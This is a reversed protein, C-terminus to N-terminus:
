SILRASQGILACAWTNLEGSVLPSPRKRALKEAATRCLVAYEETLYLLCFEDTMRILEPLIEKASVRPTEPEKRRLSDSTGTAPAAAVRCDRPLMVFFRGNERATRFSEDFRRRTGSGFVVNFNGLVGHCVIEGLFPLLVTEVLRPLPVAVLDSIPQSLGLVAYAEATDDTSLLVAHRKLQRLVIFQGAVAHRWNSVIQLEQLTLQAPNTAAFADLLDSSGVLAQMADKRQQPTLPDRKSTPEPTPARKLADNVFQLLPEYLKFFLQCEELSLRM